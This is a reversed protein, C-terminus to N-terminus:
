KAGVVQAIKARLTATDFPKVMYNNVGAKLAIVIDEKGAVTTVMLIPMAKSADIRRVEKVLDLGNMEPMNWDTILLDYHAQALMTLAERGNGAEDVEEYGAQKLQNKIIRRMTASDDVALIKM